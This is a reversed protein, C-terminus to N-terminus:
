PNAEREVGADVEAFDRVSADWRFARVAEVRRGVVSVVVYTTDPYMPEEGILAQRKDTASFYAGADVHSHYIVTPMFGESELRVMRLRDEDAIHYATRGDRPYRGPDRAHLEDQANRCRLLRREGDRAMLVGCAERPYEEVAHQRIAELEEAALIM